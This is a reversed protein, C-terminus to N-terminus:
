PPSIKEAGSVRARAANRLAHLHQHRNRCDAGSLPWLDDLDHGSVVIFPGAKIDVNVRTPVPTGFSGTNAQDLLEMCRFNIKGFELILALCEEVTHSEAVACLGKVFWDSVEPDEYGLNFAHHAYAAMGKMGFLLTSRLSVLTHKATGSNSIRRKKKRRM